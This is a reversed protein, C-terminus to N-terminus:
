HNPLNYANTIKLNIEFENERNYIRLRHREPYNLKLRKKVNKLGIGSAVDKEKHVSAISNICSFEILNKVARIEIKIWGGDWIDGHKFANEIFPILIMPAIKAAIINGDVRLEVADLAAEKLEQLDIYNDIYEIEKVLAVEDTDCDYLTYRLLGSLKHISDAVKSGELVAQAYINNLANFLFHPNIQMRLLKVEARVKEHELAWMQATLKKDQEAYFYLISVFFVNLGSLSVRATWLQELELFHQFHRFSKLEEPSIWYGSHFAWSFISYTMGIWCMAFAISGLIFLFYKRKAFTLPMLIYYNTYFITAHVGVMFLSVEAGNRLTGWNDHAFSFLFLFYATWVLLEKYRSKIHRM